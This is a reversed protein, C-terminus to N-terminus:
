LLVTRHRVSGRIMVYVELADIVFAGPLAALRRKRGAAAPTVVLRHRIWPLLLLLALHWRLSLVLGVLAVVMTPHTPKWFLRHHVLRPRAAPHRRIVLPIDQWRLSERLVGRFNGPRVDHHVLADTSFVSVAGQDEVRLGLDTDEGGPTRFREEFGGAAELDVRRYFINCTEFFRVEHVEVVRAFAGRALHLQDPPPDTRGVV